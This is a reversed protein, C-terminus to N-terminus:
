PQTIDMCWDWLEIDRWKGLMLTRKLKTFKKSALAKSVCVQLMKVIRKCTKEFVENMDHVVTRWTPLYYGPHGTKMLTKFGNDEVISFPRMSESVWKVIEAWTKAKTHQHHSYTIKGKGTRSFAATISGDIMNADGLAQWASEINEAETAQQVIDEGWCM